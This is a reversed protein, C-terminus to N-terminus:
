SIYTVITDDDSKGNKEYRSALLFKKKLNNKKINSLFKPDFSGDANFIAM